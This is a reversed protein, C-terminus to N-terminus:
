PETLKFEIRRNKAYAEDTDGPDIPRKDGFGTAALHEAEALLAPLSQGLTEARARLDLSISM